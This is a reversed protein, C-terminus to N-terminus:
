NKGYRSQGLSLVDLILAVSGDGLITAGTLGPVHNYNNKLSKIVVQQQGVVDDVLLGTYRDGNDFVVLLENKETSKDQENSDVNSDINFLEALRIITIYSDRYHYMSAKESVTTLNDRDFVLTEVISHLPIIFTQDSVRIIQGDLIALTLPLNITFTSGEGKVSEIDVKGGLDIINQKVVDMGVGRGSVESIQEATSFGPQFILNIIDHDSLNDSKSVIGKEVATDLIKEPDMGKGDDTVQIVVHGEKHIAMIRVLGNEPKGCQIRTEPSEIGHDIANRVLHVLPDGINELITKDLETTEGSFELTVKKGQTISLDHVIRPLRQFANDVPLMRINMTQEQLDRTNRELQELSQQLEQSIEGGGKRCISNLISQTIVLEGVLNLLKDVKDTNVRISRKEYDSKRRGSPTRPNRRDSIIRKESQNEIRLKCDDIVWAFVDEIEDKGARCELTIYWGLYCDHVDIQDPDPVKDTVAEVSITGLTELERILRLPDNGSHFIKADPLFTIKWKQLPQSQTKEEELAPSSTNTTTQNGEQGSSIEDLQKSLASITDTDQRDGSKETSLMNRLCDVSALLLNIIAESIELENNRIRDLVTEISHTFQGIESFGFTSSSGKISHAARFITNITENDVSEPSLQLLEQEMIKIADAAEEFFSDHFQSMDINIDM